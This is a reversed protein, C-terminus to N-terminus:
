EEELPPCFYKSLKDRKRQWEPDDEFGPKLRADVEEEASKEVRPIYRKKRESYVFYELDPCEDGDKPEPPPTIIVRRKKNSSGASKRNLLFWTITIALFIGSLMPFSVILALVIIACIFKIM